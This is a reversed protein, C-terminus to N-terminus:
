YIKGSPMRIFVDGARNVMLEFPKPLCKLERVCQNMFGIVRMGLTLDLAQEFIALAFNHAADEGGMQDAMSRVSQDDNLLRWSLDKADKIEGAKVMDWIKRPEIHWARAKNTRGTKPNLFTTTYM